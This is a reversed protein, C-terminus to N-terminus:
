GKTQGEKEAASDTIGKARTALSHQVLDMGQGIGFACAKPKYYLRCHCLGEFEEDELQGRFEACPCFTEETKALRCPCYGGKRKLGEKM